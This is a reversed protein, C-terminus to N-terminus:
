LFDFSLLNIEIRLVFFQLSSTVESIDRDKWTSKRLRMPRSVPLFKMPGDTFLRLYFMFLCYLLCVICHLAICHLAICYETCPQM